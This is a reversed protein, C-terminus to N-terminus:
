RVMELMYLLSSTGFTATRENLQTSLTFQSYVIVSYEESRHQTLRRISKKGKPAIIDRM